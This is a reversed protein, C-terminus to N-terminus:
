PLPLARVVAVMMVVLCVYQVAFATFRLVVVPVSGSAMHALSQVMRAGLAVLPLRAELPTPRAFVYFLAFVIAVLPLNEVANLHARNVRWYADSGHPQGAPFENFRKEGRMIMGTRHLLIIVVLLMTWLVYGILSWIVIPSHAASM